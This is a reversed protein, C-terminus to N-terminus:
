GREQALHVLVFYANHGLLQAVEMNIPVYSISLTAWGTITSQLVCKLVIYSIISSFHSSLM